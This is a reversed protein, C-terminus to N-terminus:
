KLRSQKNALSPDQQCESIHLWVKRASWQGPAGGKDSQKIDEKVEERLKPDTYKNKPPM